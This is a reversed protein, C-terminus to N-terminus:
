RGFPIWRLPDAPQRGRRLNFIWYLRQATTEGGKRGWRQYDSQQSHHKVHCRKHAAVTETGGESKLIIHHQNLTRRSVPQHCFHCLM